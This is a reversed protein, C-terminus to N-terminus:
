PMVWQDTAMCIMQTCIGSACDAAYTCSAGNGLKAVCVDCSATGSGGCGSAAIGAILAGVV